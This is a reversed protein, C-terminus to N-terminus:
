PWALGEPVFREVAHGQQSQHQLAALFQRTTPELAGVAKCLALLEKVRAAITFVDSCQAFGDFRDRLTGDCDSVVRSCCQFKMRGKTAFLDIRM